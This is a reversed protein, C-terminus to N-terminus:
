GMGMYLLHLHAGTYFYKVVENCPAVIFSDVQLPLALLARYLALTQAWRFDILGHLNLSHKPPIKYPIIQLQAGMNLTKEAGGSPAM